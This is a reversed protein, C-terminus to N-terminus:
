YQYQFANPLAWERDFEEWTLEAEAEDSEVQIGKENWGQVIAEVGEPGTLKMRKRLQLKKNPGSPPTINASDRYSPAVNAQFLKCAYERLEGEIPGVKEEVTKIIQGLHIEGQATLTEVIARVQKAKDPGLRLELGVRDLQAAQAFYGNKELEEAQEDIMTQIDMSSEKDPFAYWLGISTSSKYELVVSDGIKSNQLAKSQKRTLQHIEGTEDKVIYPFNSAPTISQITGKRKM